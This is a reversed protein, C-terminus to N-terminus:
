KKGRRIKKKERLFISDSCVIVTAQLNNEEVVKRCDTKGGKKELLKINEISVGKDIPKLMDYMTLAVVSAAHM